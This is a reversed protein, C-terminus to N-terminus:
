GGNCFELHFRWDYPATAPTQKRDDWCYAWRVKVRPKVASKPGFSALSLLNIIYLM